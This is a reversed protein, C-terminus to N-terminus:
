FKRKNRWVWIALLFGALIAAPKLFSLVTPHDLLWPGLTSNFARSTPIVLLMGLILLVALLCM